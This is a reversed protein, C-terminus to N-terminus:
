VCARTKVQVTLANDEAGGRYRPPPAAAAAAAAAAGGAVSAANKRENQVCGCHLQKTGALGCRLVSVSVSVCM